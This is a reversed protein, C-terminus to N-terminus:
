RAFSLVICVMYGIHRGGRRMFDWIYGRSKWFKKSVTGAGVRACAIAYHLASRRAIYLMALYVLSGQFPTIRVYNIKCYNVYM